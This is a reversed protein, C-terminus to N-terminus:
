RYERVPIKSIVYNYINHEEYRLVKYAADFWNKYYYVCHVPRYVGSSIDGYSVIGDSPGGCSFITHHLTWHGSQMKLIDAPVEDCEDVVAISICADKWIPVRQKILRYEDPKIGYCDAVSVSGGAWALFNGGKKVWYLQAQVVNWESEILDSCTPSM